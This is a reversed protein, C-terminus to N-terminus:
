GGAGRGTSRRRAVPLSPPRRSREVGLGAGPRATVDTLRRVHRPSEPHDRLWAVAALLITIDPDALRYAAKLTATSPAVGAADLSAALARAREIDVTLLEGNTRAVLAIAAAPNECVLTAPYEDSVGHITLPKRIIRIDKSDRLYQTDFTRWATHWDHWHSYGIREVARGTSLSPRLPVSLAIPTGVGHEASVFEAWKQDIRHRITDVAEQPTVLRATM